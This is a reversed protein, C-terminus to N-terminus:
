LVKRSRLDRLIVGGYLLAAAVLCGQGAIMFLAFLLPSPHVLHALSIALGLLALVCATILLRSM